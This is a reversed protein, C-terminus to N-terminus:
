EISRKFNISKQQLLYDIFSPSIKATDFSIILRNEDIAISLVRYGITQYILQLLDQDQLNEMEYIIEKIEGAKIKEKRADIWVRVKPEKLGEGGSNFREM